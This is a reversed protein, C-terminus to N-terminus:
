GQKVRLSVSVCLLLMNLIRPLAATHTFWASATGDARVSWAQVEPRSRMDLTSPTVGCDCARHHQQHHPNLIHISIGWEKPRAGSTWDKTTPLWRRNVPNSNLHHWKRGDGKHTQQEGNGDGQARQCRTTTWTDEMVAREAAVWWSGEEPQIPSVSANQAKIVAWPIRQGQHVNRRQRGPNQSRTQPHTPQSTKRFGSELSGSVVYGGRNEVREHTHAPFRSETGHDRQWGRCQTHTDWHCLVYLTTRNCPTDGGEGGGWTKNKLINKIKRRRQNKMNTILKAQWM